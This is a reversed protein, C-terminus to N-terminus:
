VSFTYAGDPISFILLKSTDKKGHYTLRTPVGDALRVVTRNQMLMISHSANLKYSRETVVLYYM